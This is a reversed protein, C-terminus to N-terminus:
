NTGSDSGCYKTRRYLKNHNIYLHWSSIPLCVFPMFFYIITSLTGFEVCPYETTESGLFGLFIFNLIFFWAIRRATGNDNNSLGTSNDIIPFVYLVAVSLAFACIGITKDLISRLIAYYPLFYWEPVIHKPTVLINAYVYNVSHNFLEPNFFVILGFLGLGLLVTFLDKVIFYTHFSIRTNLRVRLRLENTSSAQHLALFHFM